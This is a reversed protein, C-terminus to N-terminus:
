HGVIVSYLFNILPSLVHSFFIIFFLFLFVGYRVLFYKVEIWKAPLFTLLLWHGDLPQIPVLNFVALLLNIYVVKSLLAPFLPGVSDPLFRLVLGFLVALIINSLPGAIAVKAPGYKQDSLNLPNYPVPKAYGFLFPSQIVLLMLPLLISGFLDLHKIPNLTLRGADRATTDGMSQAMLGHSIEHIIVSYLFAIAVFAVELIPM